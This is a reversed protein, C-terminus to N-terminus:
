IKSLPVCGGVHECQFYNVRCSCNSAHCFSHCWQLDPTIKKSHFSCVPACGIEDSNSPCHSIGDCIHHIVICSKDKCQFYNEDPCVAQINQFTKSEASRESHQCIVGASPLTLDCPVILIIAQCFSMSFGVTCLKDTVNLDQPRVNSCYLLYNLNLISDSLIDKVYLVSEFSRITHLAMIAKMVQCGEDNILLTTIDADIFMIIIGDLLKMKPRSRMLTQEANKTLIQIFHLWSAKPLFSMVALGTQECLQKAKLHSTNFTGNIYYSYIISGQKMHREVTNNFITMTISEYMLIAPEMDLYCTLLFKEALSTQLRVKSTCNLNVYPTTVLDGEYNYYSEEFALTYYRTQNGKRIQDINVKVPANKWILEADASLCFTVNTLESNFLLQKYGTHSFHLMWDTAGTYAALLRITLSVILYSEHM